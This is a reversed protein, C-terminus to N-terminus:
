FILHDCFDIKPRSGFNWTLLVVKLYIEPQWKQVSFFLANEWISRMRFFFHCYVVKSTSDERPSTHEWIPADYGRVLPLLPTSPLWFSEEFIKKRKDSLFEVQVCFPRYEASMLWQSSGSVSCTAVAVTFCEWTSFIRNDWVFRWLPRVRRKEMSDNQAKTFLQGHLFPSKVAPFNFMFRQALPATNVDSKYTFVLACM